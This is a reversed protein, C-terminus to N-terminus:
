KDFWATLKMNRCAQLDLFYWVSLLTSAESVWHLRVSRPRMHIWRLLRSWLFGDFNRWRARSTLSMSAQFSILVTKSDKVFGQILCFSLVRSTTLCYSNIFRFVGWRKMRLIHVTPNPLSPDLHIHQHTFDQCWLILNTRWRLYHVPSNARLDHQSHCSTTTKSQPPPSLPYTPYLTHHYRQLSFWQDRYSLNRFTCSHYSKSWKLPRHTTYIYIYIAGFREVQTKFHTDRKQFLQM